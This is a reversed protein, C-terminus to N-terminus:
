IKFRRWDAEFRLKGRYWRVSPPVLTVQPRDSALFVGRVLAAKERGHDIFCYGEGAFRAKEGGQIEAALNRAVVEGEAAAFVGAKPLPNGNAMRIITVDGIAYIGDRGTALTAPDVPIWGSENTLGAERVMEPSRHVPVTVMLDYEISEGSQFLAQRGDPDIRSITQGRHVTIGRKGLTALLQGSAEPGAVGLPMPEPTFVHIESGKRLGRERLLADILMAAEYPAPPCKYPLRSVAIVIRGGRFRRLADRLRRATDLNYFSYAATSGPVAGWDYEAGPALVLYDYSLNGATTWVRRDATDIGEVEAQVYKIGRQILSGLSRSVKEPEREGVILRPMSGCLYTRRLRDILTVTHQADLLPRLTRAAAVGGFGGGVIVVNKGPM